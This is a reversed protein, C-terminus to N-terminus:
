RLFTTGGPGSFKTPKYNAAAEDRRRQEWARDFAAIADVDLLRVVAYRDVMIQHIPQGKLQLATLEFAQELLELADQLGAPSQTRAAVLARADNLAPGLDVGVGLKTVLNPASRIYEDAFACVLLEVAMPGRANRFGLEEEERAAFTSLLEVIAAAAKRTPEESFAQVLPRAEEYFDSVLVSHLEKRTDRELTKAAGLRDACVAALIAIQDRLEKARADREGEYHKTCADLAAQRSARCRASLEAEQPCASREAHVSHMKTDLERFPIRSDSPTFFDKIAQLM